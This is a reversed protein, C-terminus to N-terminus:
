SSSSASPGTGQKVWSLYAESGEGMPVSIVEPCDYPHNAKVLQIVQPVCATQTKIMMLCEEEEQVAGDWVYISTVSPIINVCAAARQSVLVRSITQAVLKSPTTVYCVSFM